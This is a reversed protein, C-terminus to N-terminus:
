TRGKGIHKILKHYGKTILVVFVKLILVCLFTLSFYIFYQEYKGLARVENSWYCILDAINLHILYILFSYTSCFRTVKTIPIKLTLPHFCLSFGIIFLIIILRENTFNLFALLVPSALSIIMFANLVPTIKPNKLMSLRNEFWFTLIGLSLGSVGRFYCLPVRNDLFRGLYMYWVFVVLAAMITYLYNPLKKEILIMFPLLPLMAAMYWLVGVNSDGRIIMLSELIGKLIMSFDFDNYIIIHTIILSVFVVIFTYPLFPKYKKWTYTLAQIVDSKFDSKQEKKNTEVDKTVFYGSLLFFAEVFIQGGIKFPYNAIGHLHYSHYLMICIAMIFRYIDILGNRQKKIM